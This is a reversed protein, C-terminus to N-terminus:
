GYKVGLWGLVALGAWRAVRIETPRAEPALL